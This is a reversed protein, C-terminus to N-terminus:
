RARYLCCLRRGRPRQYIVEDIAYCRGSPSTVQTGRALPQQSTTPASPPTATSFMSTSLPARGPRPNRPTRPCCRPQSHPNALILSLRAVQYFLPRLRSQTAITPTAMVFHSAGDSPTTISPLAVRGRIESPRMPTPGWLTISARGTAYLLLFAEHSRGGRM